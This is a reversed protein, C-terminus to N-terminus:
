EFDLLPFSMLLRRDAITPTVPTNISNVAIGAIAPAAGTIVCGVPAASAVPVFSDPVFTPSAVHRVDNPDIAQAEAVRVPVSTVLLVAEPLLISIVEATNPPVPAV